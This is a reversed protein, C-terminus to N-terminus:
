GAYATKKKVTEFRIPFGIERVTNMMAYINAFPTETPLSCGSAVVYGRPSDHAKSLCEIVAAAVGLPTGQLMVEAPKVNGM